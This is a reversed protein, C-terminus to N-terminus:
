HGDYINVGALFILVVFIQRMNNVMITPKTPSTNRDSGEIYLNPMTWLKESRQTFNSPRKVLDEPSMLYDGSISFLGSTSPAFTLEPSCWSCVPSSGFWLTQFFFVKIKSVKDLFLKSDWRIRETKGSEWEGGTQLLLPFLSLVYPCYTKSM